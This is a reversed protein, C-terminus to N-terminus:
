VRGTDSKRQCCQVATCTLRGRTPPVKTHLSRVRRSPPGSLLHCPTHTRRRESCPPSSLRSPRSPQPRLRHHRGALDDSLVGPVDRAATGGNFCGSPLPPRVSRGGPPVVGARTVWPAGLTPSRSSLM